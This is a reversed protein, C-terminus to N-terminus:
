RLLQGDIRTKVNVTNLANVNGLGDLYVPVDHQEAVAVAVPTARGKGGGAAPGSTAAPTRSRVLVVLLIIIAVVVAIAINRTRHSAPKDNIEPAERIKDVSEDQRAPIGTGRYVM